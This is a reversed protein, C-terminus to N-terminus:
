CADKCMTEDFKTESRGGQFAYQCSESSCGMLGMPFPKFRFANAIDKYPEAIIVTSGSAGDTDGGGPDGHSGGAYSWTMQNNTFIYDYCDCRWGEECATLDAPNSEGMQDICSAAIVTGSVQENEEDTNVRQFLLYFKGQRAVELPSLGTEGNVDHQILEWVGIEEFALPIEKEGCSFAATSLACFLMPAILRFSRRPM